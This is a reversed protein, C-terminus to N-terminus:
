FKMKKTKSDFTFGPKFIEFNYRFDIKEFKKM